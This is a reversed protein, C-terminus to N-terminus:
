LLLRSSLVFVDALPQNLTKHQKRWCSLGADKYIRCTYLYHLTNNINHLLSSEM